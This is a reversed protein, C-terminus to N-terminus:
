EGVWVGGCMAHWPRSLSWMGAVTNEKHGRKEEKGKKPGKGLCPRRGMSNGRCAGAGHEVMERFSGGEKAAEQKGTQRDDRQIYRLVWRGGSDKKKSAIAYWCVLVGGVLTAEEGIDGRKGWVADCEEWVTL